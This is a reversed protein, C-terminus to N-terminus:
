QGAPAPAVYKSRLRAWTRRHLLSQFSLERSRDIYLIPAMDLHQLGGTLMGKVPRAVDTSRGGAGEAAAECAEIRDLLRGLLTVDCGGLRAFVSAFAASGTAEAGRVFDAYSCGAAGQLLPLELLRLRTGCLDVMGQAEEASYGRAELAARTAGEEPDLLSHCVWRADRLPSCEEFAFAVEASSGTVVARVAKRDVGYSVLLTGLVSLILRGGARALRADKVLDQVEDFLLVPAADLPSMTRQREQQLEESVDFLTRLALVLRSNTDVVSLEAQMPGEQLRFGRSFASGILSRRLPFGVQSFIQRATEDMLASVEREPAAAAGAAGSPRLSPLRMRLVVIPTATPLSAAISGLLTSKGCGSPGIILRSIFGLTVPRQPVPLLATPALPLAPPRCARLSRLMRRRIHSPSEHLYFDLALGAALAGCVAVPLFRLMLDNAARQEESAAHQQRLLLDHAARQEESAARQEESAARRTIAAAEANVRRVEAALLEPPRSFPLSTPSSAGAGM